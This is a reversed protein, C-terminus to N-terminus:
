ETRRRLLAISSVMASPELGVGTHRARCRRMLVGTFSSPLTDCAVVYGKSFGNIWSDNHRGFAEVGEAAVRRARDRLDTLQPDLAFDLSM